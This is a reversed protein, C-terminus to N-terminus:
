KHLSYIDSATTEEVNYSIDTPKITLVRTFDDYNKTGLMVGIFYWQMNM